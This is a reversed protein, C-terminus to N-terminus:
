ELVKMTLKGDKSVLMRIRYSTPSDPVCVSATMEVGDSAAGVIEIDSLVSQQLYSDPVYKKFDQKRVDASFLRQAGKYVCVNIINDYYVNEVLMGDDNYSTRVVKYTSPNIQVYVHYRDEGSGVISDRKILQRQNLTVPKRGDFIYKDDPNESKYLHVADGNHNEFYFLHETQRTIVYRAESNGRLVLTDGVIAFYVPSLMSDAYVISDGKVMMTVEGDDGSTWVGQLLAKAEKDEELVAVGDKAIDYCSVSLLGSIIFFFIKRM